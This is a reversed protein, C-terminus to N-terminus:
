KTLSKEQSITVASFFIFLVAIEPNVFSYNTIANILIFVGAVIFFISNPNNKLQNFSHTIGATFFLFYAVVLSIGGSLLLYIYESDPHYGTLVLASKSNGIGLIKHQKWLDICAEWADYRSTLSQIKFINFNTIQKLYSLGSNVLIFYGVFLGIAIILISKIKFSRLVYLISLAIVLALISTRSQTFVIFILSLLVLTNRFSPKFFTKFSIIFTLILGWFIGNDNPSNFTGFLRFNKSIESNLEYNAAHNSYLKMLSVGWGFPNILMLLNISLSLIIVTTLIQKFEAKLYPYFSFAAVAIVYYKIPRFAFLVGSLTIGNILNSIFISLALAFLLHFYLPIQKFNVTSSTFLVIVLPIYLINEISNMALVFPMFLQSLLTMGLTVLVITSEVNKISVTKHATKNSM